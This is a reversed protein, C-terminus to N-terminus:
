SHEWASRDSPWLNWYQSVGALSFLIVILNFLGSVGAEHVNNQSLLISSNQYDHGERLFQPSPLIDSHFPCAQHIGSFWVQSDQLLSMWTTSISLLHTSIATSIWFATLWCIWLKTSKIWSFFDTKATLAAAILRLTWNSCCLYVDCPWPFFSWLVKFFTNTSHDLKVSEVLYFEKRLFECIVCLM